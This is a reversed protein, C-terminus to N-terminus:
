WYIGLKIHDIATTLEIYAADGGYLEHDISTGDKYYVSVLLWMQYDSASLVLEADYNDSNYCPLFCLSDTIGKGYYYLEEGNQGHFYTCTESSLANSFDYEGGDPHPSGIIGNYDDVFVPIFQTAGKLSDIWEKESGNFGNEVAIEYASKGDKGDKGRIVEPKFINGRLENVSM